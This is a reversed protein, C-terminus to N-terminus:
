MKFIKKLLPPVGLASIIIIILYKIGRTIFYIGPALDFLSGLLLYVGFTIVLGIVTALLTKKLNLKNPDYKVFKEELPFAIAAGMLLGCSIALGEINIKIDGTWEPNNLLLLYLILSGFIWLGLSFTVGILIKKKLSWNGYIKSLKPELYMYATIVLLGLMFGGIVDQLDHVGIVLRSIPVMIMLFMAFTQWPIRIKKEEGKFIFFAYGWFSLVGSTHTSPLGFSTELLKGDVINTLPRGDLFLGKFFDGFYQATLFGIILKKAFKKNVGFFFICFFIIDFEERGFLSIYTSIKYIIENSIYFSENYGLAILIVGIVLVLASIIINIHVDRTKLEYYPEYKNENEDSM